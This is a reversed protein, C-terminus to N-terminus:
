NTVKAYGLYQAFNYSSHFALGCCVTQIHPDSYWLSASNQWYSSNHLPRLKRNRELYFQVRNDEIGYLEILTTNKELTEIFALISDEDIQNESLDLSILTENVKLAEALNKIDKSKFRNKALSLSKLSQNVKLAEAIDKLDSQIETDCLELSRLTTNHELAKALAKITSPASRRGSFDFEILTPDSASIRELVSQNIYKLSYDDCDDAYLLTFFMM